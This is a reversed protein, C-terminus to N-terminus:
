EGRILNSDYKAALKNLEEKNPGNVFMIFVSMFIIALPFMLKANLLFLIIGGIAVTEVIAWIIFLSSIYNALFPPKDSDEDLGEKRILMSDDNLLKTRLIKAVIMIFISYPVLGYKFIALTNMDIDIPPIPSYKYILVIVIGYIVNAMVMAFHIFRYTRLHERILTASETM